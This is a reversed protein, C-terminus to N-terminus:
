NSLVNEVSFPVYRLCSLAIWEWTRWEINRWEKSDGGGVWGWGAGGGEGVRNSLLLIASYAHFDLVLWGMRVSLLM